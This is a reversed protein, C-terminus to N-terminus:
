RYDESEIADPEGVYVDSLRKFLDSRSIGRGKQDGRHKM